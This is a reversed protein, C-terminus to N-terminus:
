RMKGILKVGFNSFLMHFSYTEADQVGHITLVRCTVDGYSLVFVIDTFEGIQFKLLNGPTLVEKLSIM